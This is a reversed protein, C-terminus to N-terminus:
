KIQALVLTFRAMYKDIYRIITEFFIKKMPIKRERKPKIMQKRTKQAKAEPIEAEGFRVAM